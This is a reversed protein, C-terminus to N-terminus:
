GREILRRALEDFRDAPVFAVGGDDAVVIDGQRVQVGSIAVPKGFEVAEEISPGKRLHTM